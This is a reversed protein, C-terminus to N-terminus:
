RSRPIFDIRFAQSVDVDKKLFGSNRLLLYMGDWVDKDMWGIHKEDPVVLSYSADLMTREHKENLLGGYRLTYEVAKDRNEFAFKWGELTAAVVRKVMDPNTRLMEETTFLADAYLNVGYDSPWILTVTHGKEIATIPENISYGPWVDVQGTLLPSIDFKVPVETLENPSINAKRLMARYTLEENGGLKVGIKKGRFQVVSSIGTKELSFLVFPSKRYIVAIAVVPIGKERAILIQDAATVGFHDSGSAVMQIAPFDIGGPHLTVDLGKKAYLGSEKAYYFGAFQAQHLWKLRINIKESADEPKKSCGTQLSFLLLLLIFFLWSLKNLM